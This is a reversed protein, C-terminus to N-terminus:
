WWRTPMAPRTPRRRRAVDALTPRRDVGAPLRFRVTTDGTAAALEGPSGEAILRGHRLVGVRDALHEVEDLYHSTLLVTAGGACLSRILEWAGRRAAPDFGTTPEDLFLLDPYGIIGLALDLRRRQGGSLRDCRKDVSEDLGVLAVCEEVTRSRRYCSGTCPSCRAWRRARARRGLVAPRHRHPRPVLSRRRGPRLRARLGVGVHTSPLGELIEVTTTKGAGNEGLLGYVEGPEVAFSIGDVARADGYRKVLEDVAIVPARQEM